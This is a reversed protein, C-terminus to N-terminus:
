RAAQAPRAAHLVGSEVEANSYKEYVKIVSALDDKGYGEAQGMLSVQQAAAALFMPFQLDKGMGLCISLDKVQIDLSARPVFDRHLMLPVRDQLMWSNASGRSLVDFLIDPDIGAKSGFAFAEALGVLTVYAAIQNTAKVVLGSGVEEGVHVVYKGIADFIDKIAEFSKKPGGIMMTLTGASAGTEGGSVPADLVIIGKAKAAAAVKRADAPTITPSLVLISGPKMGQLLGDPGSAIQDVQEYNLVIVIVVDCGAGLAKASTAARGGKAVIRDMAERRVDLVTVPFGAKLLNSAMGAGISGLGIVGVNKM